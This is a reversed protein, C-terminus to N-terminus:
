NFCVSITKKLFRINLYIPRIVFLPFPHHAWLIPAFEIYFLLRMLGVAVDVYLLYMSKQDWPTDRVSNITQLIYRM